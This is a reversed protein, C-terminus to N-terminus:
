HLWCAQVKKKKEDLNFRALFCLDEPSWLSTGAAPYDIGNITDSQNDLPGRDTWGVAKDTYACTHRRVLLEVWSGQGYGAFPLVLLWAYGLGLGGTPADM